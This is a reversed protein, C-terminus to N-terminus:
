KRRRFLLLGGLGCVASLALTTPEPVAAITLFPVNSLTANYSGVYGTTTFFELYGIGNYVGGSVGPDNPFTDVGGLIYGYSPDTLLNGSSDRLDWSVGSTPALGGWSFPGQILGSIQIAYTDATDSPANLNGSITLLQQSPGPFTIQQALLTSGPADLIETWIGGSYQAFTNFSSIALFALSALLFKRNTKTAILEGSRGIIHRVFTIKM